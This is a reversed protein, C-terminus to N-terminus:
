VPSRIKQVRNNGSDVVFIYEDTGDVGWPYQLEGEDFGLRGYIGLSKGEPTVRQLRNNGFECVLLTGDKLIMLDYPYAFQGPERGATGFQRLINGKRDTVVIRHNCADAIFLESKDANFALSQPRNFQGTESGFSGFGYLFEGQPSFVQVRDNGGYESVFLEGDPGFEIDTTYIFQGPEQGYSGFRLLEEGQADYAIVRFYHTDAVFITGDPAVNLGTPKGMEWEPLRWQSLPTGQFDFRQVRATKDVVYVFERQSDVAIARPYNFQGMAQGASGFLLRTKLPTQGDSDASSCGPICLLVLLPILALTATRTFRGAARWAIIAVVAASLAFGILALSAIMVTYPRQYHMANLIALAIPQRNSPPSVQGTVTIESLALVFVIALSSVAVALLRPRASVLQAHLTEAGDLRRLDKLVKAERLAMWRSLLAAVFGFRALHGLVLIAPTLYILNTVTSELTGLTAGFSEQTSQGSKGFITTLNYASELAVGVLMGPVAAAILWGVAQLHGAGRVWARSDTWLISLGMAVMAACVGSVLALLITSVLDPGYITAFERISGFGGRMSGRILFGLPLAVAVLWITAVFVKTMLHVHGSRLPPLTQRSGLLMWIAGAGLIALLAAGSGSELIDRSNSGLADLARLENGFTYIEALDFCTTNNFTMIFVVLGGIALGAWDQRFRERIRVVWGAGDLRLMEERRASASAGTGAVCWSVLPWSWCLLGLFLTLDKLLRVRAAGGAIAWEHLISDAPWTQWWAYFIVYAPLCVPALMLIALPLFGKKNVAKSLLVGPMWGVLMAGLAVAIAWRSSILLLEGLNRTAVDTSPPLSVKTWIAAVIPWGVAAVWLGLALVGLLWGSRRM